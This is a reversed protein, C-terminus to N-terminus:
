KSRRARFRTTPLDDGASHGRFASLAFCRCGMLPGSTFDSLPPVLEAEDLDTKSHPPKVGGEVARSSAGRWLESFEARLKLVVFTVFRVFHDPPVLEAEDM